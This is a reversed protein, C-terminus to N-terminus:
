RRDLVKRLLDPRDTMIGGVGEQVLREMEAEDDITWVNVWKGARACTELFPPDVLRMGQFSPPMDLVTYRPEEPLQEGMRAAMVFAVLAERPYFHLAEPLATHLRESLADWESGCCVRSAAGADKVVQAFDREIGPEDEKVDVNMRLGPFADLVERFTPIRIGKKRFPYTRGGDSTFRFGADLKQIEALTMQNIAGAGDTCRGVTPDHSVVLVGDKTRHVDLELMDTRFREVAQRFAHLTNEPALEAGGRHSIHLTPRLGQLFPHM